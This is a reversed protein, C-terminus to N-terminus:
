IEQSVLRIRELTDPDSYDARGHLRHAIFQQISADDSEDSRELEAREWLRVSAYMVWALRDMEPRMALTASGPDMGAINQLAQMSEAIARRVADVQARDEDACADLLESLYAFFGEHV